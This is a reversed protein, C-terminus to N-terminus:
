IGLEAMSEAIQESVAETRARYEHWRDENWVELRDYLGAIIVQRSIGAYLRLYEPVTVRGQNDLQADWAGALMLRAFARSDKRSVPLSALRLAIQEWPEKPYLWLCGDLGRTVVIGQALDARYKAPVALRGKEDITHSHEGIFM